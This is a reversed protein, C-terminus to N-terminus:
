VLLGALLGVLIALGVWVHSRFMDFAQAQTVPRRLQGVQFLFFVAVGLLGAYYPWELQAFWGAATLFTLMIGFALGM